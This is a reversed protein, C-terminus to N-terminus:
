KCQIRIENGIRDSKALYCFLKEVRNEGESRETKKDPKKKLSPSMNSSPTPAVRTFQPSNKPYFLYNRKGWEVTRVSAYKPPSHFTPGRIMLSITNLLASLPSVNKAIFGAAAARPLFPHIKPQISLCHFTDPCRPLLSVLSLM